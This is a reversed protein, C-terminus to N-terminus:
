PKQFSLNTTCNRHHVFHSDWLSLRRRKLLPIAVVDFSRLKRQCRMRRAIEYRPTTQKIIRHSVCSIHVHLYLSISSSLLPIYLTLFRLLLFLWVITTWRPWYGILNRTLFFSFSKGSALIFNHPIFIISISALFLPIFLFSFLPITPPASPRLTKRRDM